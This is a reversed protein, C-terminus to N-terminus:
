FASVIMGLVFHQEIVFVEYAAMFCTHMSLKAQRGLCCRHPIDISVAVYSHAMSNFRIEDDLM